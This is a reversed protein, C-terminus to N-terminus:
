VLSVTWGKAAAVAIEEATLTNIAGGDTASGANGRFQITNAGGAASTDPLSNITNVASDHNYRSYAQVNTFWDPDDKLAQYTADDYVRKDLTIGSNGNSILSIYSNSTYGIENTLSITQSKWPVVKPQGDDTDFIIDKVRWCNNFTSSFANSTFAGPCIPVGRIEDITYLQMFGSAYISNYGGTGGLWLEKLFDEPIHRLSQCGTFIANNKVNYAPSTAHLNTLDLDIFEPLERLFASNGFMWSMDGAKLNILKGIKKLKACGYFMENTNCATLYQGLGFNLDFPIETLTSSGNFMDNGNTINNTKIKNGYESIFWNWGNSAFRYTCDGTVNFAEEPLDAGGGGTTIGQIASPMDAVKLLASDGTKERIADGIATLRDESIFVTAM